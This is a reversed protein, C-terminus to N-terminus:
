YCLSPRQFISKPMRKVCNIFNFNAYVLASSSSDVRRLGRKGVPGLLRKLRVVFGSGVLDFCVRTQLYVTLCNAAM